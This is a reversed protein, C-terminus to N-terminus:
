GEAGAQRLAEVLDRILAVDARFQARRAVQRWGLLGVPSGGNSDGIVDITIEAAGRVCRVRALVGPEGGGAAAHAEAGCRRLVASLADYVPPPCRLLFGTEPL